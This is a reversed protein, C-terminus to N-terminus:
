KRTQGDVQGDLESRMNATIAAVSGPTSGTRRPPIRCWKCPGGHGGPAPTMYTDDTDGLLRYGHVAALATRMIRDAKGPTFGQLEAHLQLWEMFGRPGLDSYLQRLEATVEEPTM